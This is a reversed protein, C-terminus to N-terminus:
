YKSPQLPCMLVSHSSNNNNNSCLNKELRLSFISALVQDVGMFPEQLTMEM